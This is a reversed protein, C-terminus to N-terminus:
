EEVGQTICELLIGVEDLLVLGVQGGRQLARDDLNQHVLEALGNLCRADLGDGDAATHRGVTAHTGGDLVICATVAELREDGLTYEGGVIGCHDGDRSVEFIQVLFETVDGRWGELANNYLRCLNKKLTDNVRFSTELVWLFKLMKCNTM